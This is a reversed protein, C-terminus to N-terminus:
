VKVILKPNQCFSGLIRDTDDSNMDGNKAICERFYDRQAQEAGGKSGAPLTPHAKIALERCKKALEASIASQAASPLAALAAAVLASALRKAAM